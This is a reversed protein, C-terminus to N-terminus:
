RSANTRCRRCWERLGLFWRYKIGQGQVRPVGPTSISKALSVQTADQVLFECSRKPVGRLEFKGEVDEFCRDLWAPPVDHTAHSTYIGRKASEVAAPSLDTGLVSLQVRALAPLRRQIGQDWLLALSYAEEGASCGLSWCRIRNGGGEVPCRDCAGAAPQHRKALKWLIEDLVFDFVAPDRFFKSFTHYNHEVVSHASKITSKVLKAWGMKATPGGRIADNPHSREM